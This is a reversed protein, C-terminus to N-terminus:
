APVCRARGDDPPLQVAADALGITAVLADRRLDAERQQQSCPWAAGDMEVALLVEDCAADLFHRVGAV